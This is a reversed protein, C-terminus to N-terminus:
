RLGAVTDALSQDLPVEPRWGLERRAKECSYVWWRGRIARAFVESVVRRGGLVRVNLAEALPVMGLMFGPMTVLTRPVAPEVRRLVSVVERFHPQPENVVLYRGRAGPGAALVHARAVDRVDVLPLTSNPVGFRYGGVMANEILDTTTTRRAFGPGIIAGPLVAVMDVGLEAALAWAAREAETKARFYPMSLDDQWDAETAPADRRRSLPVAVVSSTLVLRRVGAGAAARVANTAGEVSDRIMAADAEASGTWYRYTAACHFLTDIGQVARHFAAADTVDLAVLDSLGAARLHATRGADAPDRVSARVAHGASQLALALNFGLHGNAGTVLVPGAIGQGATM